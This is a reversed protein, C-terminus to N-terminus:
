EFRSLIVLYRELAHPAHAFSPMKFHTDIILRKHYVNITKDKQLGVIKVTSFVWTPVSLLSLAQSSSDRMVTWRGSCSGWKTMCYKLVLM